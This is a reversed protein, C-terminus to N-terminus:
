ILSSFTPDIYKEDIIENINKIFAKKIFTQNHTLYTIIHM